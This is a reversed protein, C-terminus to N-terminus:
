YNSTLPRARERGVAAYRARARYYQYYYLHHDLQGIIDHVHM